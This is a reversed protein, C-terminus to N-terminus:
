RTRLRPNLVLYLADVVLSIMLAMICYTLGVTQIVPLDVNRIADIMLNGLGPYSFIMEVLLTGGFLFGFQVGMLGLTPLIANKLAHSVLVKRESLGRLRAQHIYDEQYVDLLSSRLVRMIAPAAAIGLAACPLLMHRLASFFADPRGVLLTDLLLFGTVVPREIGPDLRLMFPLWQLWVGFILMLILALLFDPLSLLAISGVDLAAEGSTGRFHFAVLGGVIGLLAAVIMSLFALEITAPLAEGVLTKVPQRLQISMGFDGSLMQGMWIGFQTPLPQDLGMEHRMAELEAVTANPPLSMAAPDVPLLRLVSFLLMAVIVVTPIAVLFRKVVMKLITAFM